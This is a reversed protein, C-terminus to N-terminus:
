KAAASALRSVQDGSESSKEIAEIIVALQYGVRKPKIGNSILLDTVAEGYKSDRSEAACLSISL